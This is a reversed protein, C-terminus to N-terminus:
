WQDFDHQPVLVESSVSFTASFGEQTLAVVCLTSASPDADIEPDPYGFITRKRSFSLVHAVYWNWFFVSDLPELKLVGHLYL